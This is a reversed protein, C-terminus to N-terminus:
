NLRRSEPRWEACLIDLRGDNIPIIASREPRHRHFAAGFSSEAHRFCFADGLRSMGPVPSKGQIASASFEKAQRIGKWPEPPRPPRFRWKGAPPMVYPIGLFLQHAERQLGEVRGCNTEVLVDM